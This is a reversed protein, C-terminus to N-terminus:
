TGSRKAQRKGESNGSSRVRIGKMINHYSCSLDAQKKSRRRLFDRTGIGMYAKSMRRADALERGGRQIRIKLKPCRTGDVSNQPYRVEKVTLEPQNSISKHRDVSSLVAFNLSTGEQSIMARLRRRFHTYRFSGM